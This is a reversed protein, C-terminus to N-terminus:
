FLALMFAFHFDLVYLARSNFLFFFFFFFSHLHNFSRFSACGVLISPFSIEYNFYVVFFTLTFLSFLLLLRPIPVMSASAMECKM